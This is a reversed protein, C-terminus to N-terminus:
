AKDELELLREADTRHVGMLTLDLAAAERAQPTKEGERYAAVITDAGCPLDGRDEMVDACPARSCDISARGCGDCTEGEAAAALGADDDGQIGTGNLEAAITEAAALSCCEATPNTDYANGIELRVTSPWVGWDEARGDGPACIFEGRYIGMVVYRVAELPNAPLEAADTDWDAVGGEDYDALIAPCPQNRHKPTFAACTGAFPTGQFSVPNEANCDLLTALELAMLSGTAEILTQWHKARAPATDQLAELMEDIKLQVSM